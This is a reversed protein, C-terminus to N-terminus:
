GPHSSAVLKSYTIEYLLEPPKKIDLNLERPTSPAITTIAASPAPHLFFAGTRAGRPQRRRGLPLSVVGVAGHSTRHNRREGDLGAVTSRPCDAVKFHDTVLAVLTIM